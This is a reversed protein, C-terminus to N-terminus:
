RWVVVERVCKKGFIKHLLEAKKIAKIADEYSGHYENLLWNSTKGSFHVKRNGVKCKKVLRMIKPSSLKFVSGFNPASPDQHKRYYQIKEMKAEESETQNMVPFQFIAASIIYNTNHKFLSDRYSFDCEDRTMKILKGDRIVEIYHVYDSIAQNKAKGTGANMAIAGGVCGPVNCLYEIGGYGDDNIVKIFKTLYVSAGVFYKGDGLNEITCNFSKLDVVLDFHRDNILLNSGGGIFYQPNHENIIDILEQTSEPVLMKDAIGGIRITTHKSLDENNLIKM